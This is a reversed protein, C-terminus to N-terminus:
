FEKKFRMGYLSVDYENTENQVRLNVNRVCLKNKYEKILDSYYFLSTYLTDLQKLILTIQPKIILEKNFNKPKFLSSLLIKKNKRRAPSFDDITEELYDM